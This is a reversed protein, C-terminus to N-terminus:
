FGKNDSKISVTLLFSSIGAKVVVTQSHQWINPFLPLLEKVVNPAILLSKKVPSGDTIHFRETDTFPKIVFLHAIMILLAAITINCYFYFPKALSKGSM